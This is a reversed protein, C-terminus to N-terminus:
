NKSFKGNSIKRILLTKLYKIAGERISKEPNTVLLEESVQQLVGLGNCLDCAGFPSNFSFLRPELKPISFNCHPCALHESFIQEEDNISIIVKGDGLKLATEISSYLRSMNEKRLRLRDVVVEINHTKNKDLAINDTLEVIEGNIRVRIYGEKRLHDFVKEHTGKRGYVVPSLVIIRSDEPYEFIKDTIQDVTQATIEINHEPCYARGIRAYLLRLYDYIETVTGM